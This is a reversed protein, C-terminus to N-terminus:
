ATAALGMMSIPLPADLENGPGREKLKKTYIGNKRVVGSTTM